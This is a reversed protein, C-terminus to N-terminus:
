PEPNLPVTRSHRDAKSPQPPTATAKTLLFQKTIPHPILHCTLSGSSSSTIDVPQLLKLVLPESNVPSIKNQKESKLFSKLSKCIMSYYVLLIIIVDCNKQKLNEREQVFFVSEKQQREELFIM